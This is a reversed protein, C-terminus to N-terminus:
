VLEKEPRVVGPPIKDPDACRQTDQSRKNKESDRSVVLAEVTM